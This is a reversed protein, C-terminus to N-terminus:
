IRSHDGTSKVPLLGGRRTEALHLPMRPSGTLRTTCAMKCIPRSATAPRAPARPPDYTSFTMELKGIRETRDAPCTSDVSIAGIARHGSPEGM